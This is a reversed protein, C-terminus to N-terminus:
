ISMGGIRRRAVAATMGNRSEKRSILGAGPGAGMVAARECVNPVGVTRMVFDSSAYTGEAASLIEADFTILPVSYKDRFYILAEENEKVDITCLAYLERPSIGNRELVSLFFEEAAYPDTGRKMGSGLTYPKPTLLLSYERDTEDAVIIDVPEGPPYSKVSLTVPKGEVAKASVKKIGDRNRIWLGRESAFTDASFAGHVDTSTTIVPVADILDAIVCALKNAGGAHGSLIPIVFSGGDDIVIVPSDTLKDSVAGAVARVAIGAAGVFIIAKHERFRAEAWERVSCRVQIFGGSVDKNETHIFAEAEEIGAARAAANMREIVSRGHSTFCIASKRM